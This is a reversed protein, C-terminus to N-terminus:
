VLFVSSKGGGSAGFVRTSSKPVACDAACAEKFINSQMMKNHAAHKMPNVNESENAEETEENVRGTRSTTHAPAAPTLNIVNHSVNKKNSDFKSKPPSAPAFFNVSDM